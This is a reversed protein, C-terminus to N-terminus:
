IQRYVQNGYKNIDIRRYIHTKQITFDDLSFSCLTVWQVKNFLVM